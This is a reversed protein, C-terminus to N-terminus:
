LYDLRIFYTSEIWYWIREKGKNKDKGEKGQEEGGTRLCKGIGIM